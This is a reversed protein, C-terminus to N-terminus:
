SKLPTLGCFRIAAHALEDTPDVFPGEVALIGALVPLETCGLIFYDAGRARLSDLLSVWAAKEPPIPRWPKVVDYILRMVEKQGAEDPELFSVGAADLARAYLGTQITGSTALVAACKGPYREACAEATIQLMNLIPIDTESQLAPLFVNSWKGDEVTGARGIMVNSDIYVRIHDNDCNAPTCVVIKRFLDATALPGMGGLIGITKM